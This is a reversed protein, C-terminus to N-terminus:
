DHPVKELTIGINGLAEVIAALSKKGLNPIMSLEFETWFQIQEIAKIDECKLCNNTRTDLGLREIPTKGIHSIGEHPKYADSPRYQKRKYVVKEKEPPVCFSCMSATPNFVRKCCPCQWGQPINM